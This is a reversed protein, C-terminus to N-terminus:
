DCIALQSEAFRSRLVTVLCDIFATVLLSRPRHSSRLLTIPFHIAPRFEKVVLGHCLFDDTIVASLVSVGLGQAVLHCITSANEVEVEIKRTVKAKEFLSDVHERSGNQRAISIFPEGELDRAHIVDRSALRHDRHLICRGRISAIRESELGPETVHGVFTALGLDCRQSNVLQEVMNSNCTRISLTVRPHHKTFEAVVSTLFGHSLAPAVAIHLRGGGLQKITRAADKLARLGAYHQEVEKFFAAGEDTVHLKNGERAFLKLDLEAELTSVLRSVNPQTTHIIRAASTMSGTRMVARFAELARVNM